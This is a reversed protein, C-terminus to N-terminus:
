KIGVVEYHGATQLTVTVPESSDNRWYWGHTGEFPANFNGDARGRTDVEYSEFYGSTDDAPEGHFDFFLDSTANWAYVLGSGQAMSFKYELGSRAPIAIDVSDSRFPEDEIGHVNAGGDGPAAIANIGIAEGFGTPDVGYEAPLIFLTLVAIAVIAAIGTAELLTRKKPLHFDDPLEPAPAHDPDQEHKMSREKGQRPNM